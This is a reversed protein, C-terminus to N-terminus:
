LSHTSACIQSSMAHDVIQVSMDANKKSGEANSGRRCSRLPRMEIFSLAASKLRVGFHQKQESFRSFLALCYPFTSYFTVSLQM